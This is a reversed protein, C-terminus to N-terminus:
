GPHVRRRRAGLWGAGALALLALPLSAPEPVRSFTIDPQTSSQGNPADCASGVDCVHNLSARGTTMSEDRLFRVSFGFAGGTLLSGDTVVQPTTAFGTNLGTFQGTSGIAVLDPPAFALGPFLLTHLTPEGPDSLSYLEVTADVVRTNECANLWGPTPLGSLAPDSLRYLGPGQALCVDPVDVRVEGRWGLYPFPAGYAPDWNGTYVAAGASGALVGFALAAVSTRLRSSTSRKFM